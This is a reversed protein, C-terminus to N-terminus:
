EQIKKMETLKPSRHHLLPPNLPKPIPTPKQHNLSITQFLLASRLSLPTSIRQPLTTLNKSHCFTTISSWALLSNTLPSVVIKFYLDFFLLAHNLYFRLTHPIYAKAVPVCQSCIEVFSARYFRLSNLSLDLTQRRCIESWKRSRNQNEPSGNDCLPEQRQQTFARKIWFSRKNSQLNCLVQFFSFFFFATLVSIQFYAAFCGQCSSLDNVPGSEAVIKVALYDSYLYLPYYLSFSTLGIRERQVHLQLHLGTLRIKVM